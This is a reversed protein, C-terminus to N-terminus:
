KWGLYETRKEDYEITMNDPFSGFRMQMSFRKLHRFFDQYKVSAQIRRTAIETVGQQFPNSNQGNHSTRDKVYFVINLGMKIPDLADVAPSVEIAVLEDKETDVGCAEALESANGTHFDLAVKGTMDNYQTSPEELVAM